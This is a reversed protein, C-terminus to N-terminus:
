QTSEPLLAVFPDLARASTFVIYDPRRGSSLLASVEKRTPILEFELLECSIVEIGAEELPRCFETAQSRARSIFVKM